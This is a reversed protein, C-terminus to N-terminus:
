SLLYRLRNELYHRVPESPALLTVSIEKKTKATSTIHPVVGQGTKRSYLIEGLDVDTLEKGLQFPKALWTGRHRLKEAIITPTSSGNYRPNEELVLYEYRGNKKIVAVDYAFVNRMGKKADLNALADTVLWASQHHKEGLFVNGVHKSGELVQDTLCLRYARGGVVRYQLNLFTVVKDGLDKQLQFKIDSSIRSLAEQLEDPTECKLVGRGDSSCNIKFWIPYPFSELNGVEEKCGFIWTKPTPIGIRQCMKIFLNKQDRKDVISLWKENRHFGHEKERFIYPHFEYNSFQEGLDEVQSIVVEPLPGLCAYKLHEGLWELHSGRDSPHIVAVNGKIGTALSIGRESCHLNNAPLSLHDGPQSQSNFLPSKSQCFLQKSM